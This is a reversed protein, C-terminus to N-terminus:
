EGLNEDTEFAKRSLPETPASFDWDAWEPCLTEFAKRSLPETPNLGRGQQSLRMATTEFAKRSLPETPYSDGLRYHRM